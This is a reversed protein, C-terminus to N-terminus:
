SPLPLKVKVTSFSYEDGVSVPIAQAGPGLSSHVVHERGLESGWAVLALLDSDLPNTFRYPHLTYM